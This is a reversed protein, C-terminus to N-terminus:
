AATNAALKQTPSILSVNNSAFSAGNASAAASASSIVSLSGFSASSPASPPASTVPLTGVIANQQKAAGGISIGHNRFDGGRTRKQVAAASMSIGQAISPPLKTPM